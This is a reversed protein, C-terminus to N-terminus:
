TEVDIICKASGRHMCQPERISVIEGYEKAVGKIIGKAIFCLRRPSTYHIQVHTPSVRQSRLYPPVADAYQIRVVKHITEETNELVDLTRWESRVLSRFMALLDPAIFEGFDELLMTAELGTISSASSVLAAVEEDPYSQSALYTKGTLHSKALLNDWGGVGLRANAYKRLENFIIGHM